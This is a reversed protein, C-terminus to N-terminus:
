QFTKLPTDRAESPRHCACCHGVTEPRLICRRRQLPLVRLKCKPRITRPTEVSILRLRLSRINHLHIVERFTRPLHALSKRNPSCCRGAFYLIGDRLKNLIVLIKFDYLSFAFILPVHCYQYACNSNCAAINMEHRTKNGIRSLLM